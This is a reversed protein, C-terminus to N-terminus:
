KNLSLLKYIKMIAVITYIKSYNVCYHGDQLSVQIEVVQMNSTKKVSVINM